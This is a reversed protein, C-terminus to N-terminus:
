SKDSGSSKLSPARVPDEKLKRECLRRIETQRTNEALKMIRRIHDLSNLTASLMYATKLQNSNIYSEIKQETSTIQKILQDIHRKANAQHQNYAIEVAMTVLDDCAKLTDADCVNEENAANTKISEILKEVEPLRYLNRALFKTCTEYIKKSELSCEQIIRYSLGFGSEISHGCLLLLIAVQNREVAKGFMTRIGLTDMFIKPMLEVTPLEDTECQALYKAVELQLSIINIHANIMKLDWKLVIEDIESPKDAQSESMDVEEAETKELEMQLHNKADMLHHAKAHLQSYNTSGDLYFKICTMAARVLDGILIQMQYLCHFQRRRLLHKSAALIYTRWTAMGMELILGMLEHLRGVKAIPVFVCQIFLESPARQVLIYRLASSILNNRMLFALFEDHGGYTTLYFMSEDYYISDIVAGSYWDFKDSPKRTALGYDGDVIKSLSDMVRLVNKSTETMPTLRSNFTAPQQELNRRKSATTELSELVEMLLPPSRTMRKYNLQKGNIPESSNIMAILEANAKVSSGAVPTLALAIKERAFKYQGSKIASVGWASFVGATGTRDWKVSLELAMKWNEAKILDNIIGRITVSNIPEMPIQPVISECGNEAVKTVVDAHDIIIDAEREAGRVKAAFALCKLMKAVLIVDVEPNIKGRIPRLLLELRHCHFLLFKALEDNITHLDIVAICLGVNPSYEFNFEDRVMQDSSVDGTLKWEVVEHESRAKDSTGDEGRRRLADTQQYCDNCVRVQLDHYVEKLQIRNESCSACVVRGCRRCHHRRTLLSFRQRKCCMCHNTENDKIWKEKEPIQKPMQFNGCSSDLSANDATSPASHVEIIQFDLAKAAYLKLLLDICENTVVRDDHHADFDYVLNEDVQYMGSSTTACTSCKNQEGLMGRVADIINRLAEIKSNMLFQELIILPRSALHWLGDCRSEGLCEFIKASIMFKQYRIRQQPPFNDLNSCLLNMVRVLAPLNNIFGLAFDYFGFAESPLFNIIKLVLNHSDNLKRNNLAEVWMKTIEDNRQTIPHMQLFELCLELNSNINLLYNMLISPSEDALQKIKIWTVDSGTSEDSLFVKVIKRYLKLKNMLSKLQDVQGEDLEAINNPSLCWRLLREVDDESKLDDICKLLIDAFKRVSGIEELKTFKDPSSDPQSTILMEIYSDKLENFQVRNRNWQRETLSSLIELKENLDTTRQIKKLILPLAVHDYNLAAVIESDYLDVLAGLPKLKMLRQLFNPEDYFLTKYDVGQIEKVLYAVLFNGETKIYYLIDMNHIAFRDVATGSGLEPRVSDAGIESMHFLSLLKEDDAGDMPSCFDGAGAVAMAHVLNVNCDFALEGVKDLKCQQQFVVRGIVNYLDIRMISDITFSENTHLKMLQRVSKAYNVIRALYNCKSDFQSFKGLVEIRQPEDNLKSLDMTLMEIVNQRNLMQQKLEVPKLTFIEDNLLKCITKEVNHNNYITLIDILNKLFKGHGFQGDDIDGLDFRKSIYKFIDHNLEYPCSLSIMFDILPLVNLLKGRYVKLNPFQEIAAKIAKVDCDRPKLLKQMTFKDIVNLLKAKEFGCEAILKIEEFEREKRM